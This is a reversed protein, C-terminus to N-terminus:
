VNSMEFIRIEIKTRFHFVLQWNTPGFQDWFPFYESNISIQYFNVNSLFIQYSNNKINLDFDNYKFYSIFNSSIRIMKSKQALKPTASPLYKIFIIKSM